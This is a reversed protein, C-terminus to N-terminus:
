GPPLTRSREDRLRIIDAAKHAILVFRLQSSNPGKLNTSFEVLPALPFAAGAMVIGMVDPASLRQFWIVSRRGFSCLILSIPAPSVPQSAPERM